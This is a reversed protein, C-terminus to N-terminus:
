GGVGNGGAFAVGPVMCCCWSSPAVVVRRQGQKRDSTMQCPRPQWGSRTFSSAEAVTAEGASLLPAASSLAALGRNTVVLSAGFDKLEKDFLHVHTRAAQPVFPLSFFRQQDQEHYKVLSVLFVGKVFMVFNDLLAQNRSIDDKRSPVVILLVGFYRPLAESRIRKDGTMEAALPQKTLRLM